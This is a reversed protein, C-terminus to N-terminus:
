VSGCGARVLPYPSQEHFEGQLKDSLLAQHGIVPLQMTLLGLQHFHRAWALLDFGNHFRRLQQEFRAVSVVEQQDLRQILAVDQTRLLQTVVQHDPTRFLAHYHSEQWSAVVGNSRIVFPLNLLQLTPNLRLCSEAVVKEGIVPLPVQAEDIEVGLCAWEYELLALWQRPWNLPEEGGPQPASKCRRQVYRVFETAIHHFAPELAGHHTVFGEVLKRCEDPSLYGLTLGFCSELVYEVNARVSRVYHCAVNEKPQRVRSALWEIQQQLWVPPLEASASENQSLLWKDM